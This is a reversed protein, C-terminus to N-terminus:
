DADIMDQSLAAASTPESGEYGLPEAMEDYPNVRIGANCSRLGQKYLHSLHLSSYYLLGHM